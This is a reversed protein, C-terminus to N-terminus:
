LATVRGEVGAEEEGESPQQPVRLPGHLDDKAGVAM